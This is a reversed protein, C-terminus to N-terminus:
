AAPLPGWFGPHKVVELDDTVRVQCALRMPTPGGRHPPFALRWREMATVPGADGSRIEVACTGCSGFGQCSVFRSQNHPSVGHQHLVDRLRAGAECTLTKSGFTVTPM